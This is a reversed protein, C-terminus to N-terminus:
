TKKAKIEFKTQANLVDKGILVHIVNVMLRIMVHYVYIDLHNNIIVIYVHIVDWSQCDNCYYDSSCDCPDSYSDVPYSPTRRIPTVVDDHDFGLGGVCM